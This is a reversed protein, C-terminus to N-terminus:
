KRGLHPVHVWDFRLGDLDLVGLSTHRDNDMGMGIVRTAKRTEPHKWYSRYGFHFHGHILM